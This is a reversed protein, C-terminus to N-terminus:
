IMSDNVGKIEASADTNIMMEAMTIITTSFFIPRSLIYQGGRVIDKPQVAQPYAPRLFLHLAPAGSETQPYRLCREVM